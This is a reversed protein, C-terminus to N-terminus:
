NLPSQIMMIKSANSSATGKNISKTKGNQACSQYQRLEQSPGVEQQQSSQENEIYDLSINNKSIIDNKVNDQYEKEFNNKKFEHKTKTNTKDLFNKQQKQCDSYTNNQKNGISENQNLLLALQQSLKRTQLQPKDKNKEINSQSQSKMIPTNNIHPSIKKDIGGSNKAPSPGRGEFDNNHGNKEIGNSIKKVQESTVCSSSVETKTNEANNNQVMTNNTIHSATFDKNQSAIETTEIRGNGMVNNSPLSFKNEKSINKLNSSLIQENETVLNEKHKTDIKKDTQTSIERSNENTLQNVSVVDLNKENNTLLAANDNTNLTNNDQLNCTTRGGVSSSQAESSGSIKRKVDHFTNNTSSVNEEIPQGQRQEDNLLINGSNNIIYNSVGISHTGNPPSPTCTSQNVSSCHSSINTQQDSITKYTGNSDKNNVEISQKSTYNPSTMFNNTSSNRSLGSNETNIITGVNNTTTASVSGSGSIGTNNTSPNTKSLVNLNQVIDEPAFSKLINNQCELVQVKNKLEAIQANLQDYEQRISRSLHFKVLDMAQNIKSGIHDDGKDNNDEKFMINGDNEGNKEFFGFINNMGVTSPATKNGANSINDNSIISANSTKKSNQGGNGSTITTPNTKNVPPMSGGINGILSPSNNGLRVREGNNSNSFTLSSEDPIGNNLVKTGGGVVNNPLVNNVNQTGQYQQNPITFTNGVIHTPTTSASPVPPIISNPNVTLPLHNLINKIKKVNQNSSNSLPLNTSAISSGNSQNSTETVVKKTVTDSSDIPSNVIGNQNSIISNQISKTTSSIDKINLDGLKEIHGPKGSVKTNDCFDEGNFLRGNIHTFESEDNGENETIDICEWRGKHTQSPNQNNKVEVGECQTTVNNIGIPVDGKTVNKSTNEPLSTTMNDNYECSVSKIESRNDCNILNSLNTNSVSPLNHIIEDSVKNECINSLSKEVIKRDETDVESNFNM